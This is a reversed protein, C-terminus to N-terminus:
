KLYDKLEMTPICFIFIKSKIKDETFVASVNKEKNNQNKGFIHDKIRNIYYMLEALIDTQEDKVTQTNAETFNLLLNCNSRHEEDHSKWQFIHFYTHFQICISHM